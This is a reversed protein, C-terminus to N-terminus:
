EEAARARLFEVKTNAQRKAALPWSRVARALFLARQSAMAFYTGKGSPNFFMKFM